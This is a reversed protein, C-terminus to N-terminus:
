LLFKKITDGVQALKEEHAMYCNSTKRISWEATAM